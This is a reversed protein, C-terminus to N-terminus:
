PAPLSSRIQPRWVSPDYFEQRQRTLSPFLDSLEFPVLKILLGAGPCDWARSGLVLLGMDNMKRLRGPFYDFSARALRVDESGRRSLPEPLESPSLARDVFKASDSTPSKM